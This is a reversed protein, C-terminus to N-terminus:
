LNEAVELIDGMSAIQKESGIVCVNGNAIAQELSDCLTLLEESTASLLAKRNAKREEYSIGKWYRTDSLLGMASPSLVPSSDSIAGIIYSSLDNHNALFDRLFQATQQYCDLSRKGNPDRYSYCATSGSERSVLGTGYAGGQVRIMNWLYELSGIRALLQMQGSFKGEYPLLSGGQVAFSIDAPIIFGEKKQGWPAVPTGEPVIAPRVPLVSSLKEAVAASVSEQDCTVSVTMRDSSIMDQYLSKLQAVDLTNELQDKMWRYYSIGHICEEAVASTSVGCEMRGLAYQSGSMVIEQNMSTKQQRLLELIQSENDFKTRTAIESVLELGADLKSELMSARVRLKLTCKEPQNLGGYTSVGFGLSGLNRRLANQLEECSYHETELNGLLKCLFSAASLQEQCLGNLDFYATVYVIGSTNVSHHLVPIGQCQTIELPLQEPEPSIEDLTVHPITALQEPTDTSNQWAETRKQLEMLASREEWNWEEAQGLIRAEEAARKEDGLTHSPILQVQCRHPNELFVERILNEFYGEDLKARLSEFLDGFVLNGEPEGGYLWTSLMTLGYVLGKPVTGFDRERNKFELHALSAELQSHDLGETALRTLEEKLLEEVQPFDEEKLNQVDVCVWPQLVENYVEVSVDEAIGAELVKRTLPAHNSGTLVDSLVDLALLKEREEFSGIVYGYGVRCRQTPDEEAGLEYPIRSIGGDVANQMTFAPLDDSRTYECLYSDLLELTEPLNVQGDLFIYSNSPHYFKRHSNVFEEYSLEPIHAPDGGSVYRYCNDPFLRRNMEDQLAEDQSAFAGKMENFVVGKYTVDGDEDFEYHWGEQAFIEPKSYILPKFVADLYVRMLNLFDQDNKSSVPYCTKDPYTMANLFTNLSGKMLEV